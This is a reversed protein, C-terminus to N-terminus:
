EMVGREKLYERLSKRIRVLRVSVNKESLGVAAAIKDYSESLWYRRMFIAQNESSLTDLFSEIIGALEKAEIEGEVSGSSALCGEIEEMAVTYSSRRKAAEKKRYANISINRVIKIVFSLLPEPRAPPISNWVGLYADNVCEEADQRSGLINNSFGRCIEGYKLDLERIATESRDFFLDIIMSDEMNIVM